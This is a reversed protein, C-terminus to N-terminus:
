CFKLLSESQAGGWVLGSSSSERQPRSKESEGRGEAMIGTRQHLIACLQWPKLRLSWRADIGVKPRVM